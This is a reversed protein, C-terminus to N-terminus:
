VTVDDKDHNYDGDRSYGSVNSERAKGPLV